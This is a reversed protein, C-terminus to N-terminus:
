TIKVYPKSSVKNSKNVPKNPNKIHKIEVFLGARKLVAHVEEQNWRLQDTQAKVEILRIDNGRVALFDPWGHQTVIYGAAKLEDYAEKEERSSFPWGHDCFGFDTRNQRGRRDGWEIKVFRDRGM